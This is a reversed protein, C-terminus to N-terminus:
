ETMGSREIVSEIYIGAKSFDGGAFVMLSAVLAVYRQFLVPKEKVKSFCSSGRLSGFIGGKKKIEYILNKSERNAQLGGVLTIKKIKYRLLVTEFEVPCDDDGGMLELGQAAASLGSEYEGSDIMLNAAAMMTMYCRVSIERCKERWVYEVVGDDKSAGDLLSRMYVVEYEDLGGVGSAMWEEGWMEKLIWRSESEGVRIISMGYQIFVFVACAIVGCFLFIKLKV